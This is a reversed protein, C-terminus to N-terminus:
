NRRQVKPAFSPQYDALRQRLNELDFKDDEAGDAPTIPPQSHRRHGAPRQNRILFKSRGLNSPLVESDVAQIRLQKGNFDYTHTPGSQEMLQKVKEEETVDEEPQM